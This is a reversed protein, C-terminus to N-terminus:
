RRAKTGPPHQNKVTVRNSRRSRRKQRFIDVHQALRRTDRLRAVRKHDVGHHHQGIMKMCNPRQRGAIRIERQPPPQDFDAKARAIGL